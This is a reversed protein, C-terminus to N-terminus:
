FKINLGLTLKRDLPYRDGRDIGSYPDVIEPDIGSYNHLVFLNEGTLFLRAEKMGFKTVFNKPLSYSCTLQRLRLFSVNEISRDSDATFQGVYGSDAYRLAPYDTQDGPKEWFTLKSYDELIVGWLKTFALSSNRSQNLMKRGLSFNFLADISFDKWKLQSTIGGHALPLTSGAYYTDEDTISGDGNFDRLKRAGLGLPHTDSGFNLPVRQGAANYYYPIDEESQVLGEDM